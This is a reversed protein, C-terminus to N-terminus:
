HMCARHVGVARYLAEPRHAAALHLHEGSASRVQVGGERGGGGVRARARRVHDIRREHRHARPDGAGVSVAAEDVLHQPAAKRVKREDEDKALHAHLCAPRHAPTPHDVDREETPLKAYFPSVLM